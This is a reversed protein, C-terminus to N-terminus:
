RPHTASGLSRSLSKDYANIVSSCSRFQFVGDCFITKSKRREIARVWVARCLVDRECWVCFRFVSGFQNWDFSQFLDVVRFEDDVARLAPSLKPQDPMVAIGDNRQLEDGIDAKHCGVLRISQCLSGDERRHIRFCLAPILDLFSVRLMFLQAHGKAQHRGKNKDTKCFIFRTQFAFSFFAACPTVTEIDSCSEGQAVYICFPM